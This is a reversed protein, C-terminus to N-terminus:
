RVLINGEAKQEGSQVEFRYTGARLNATSIFIIGDLSKTELLLEGNPTLVRAVNIIEANQYVFELENGRNLIIPKKNLMIADGQHTTKGVRLSYFSDPKALAAVRPLVVLVLTIMVLVKVVRFSTKM